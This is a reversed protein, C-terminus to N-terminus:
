HRNKMMKTMELDCECMDFQGSDLLEMLLQSDVEDLRTGDLNQEDHGHIVNFNFKSLDAVRNTLEQNQKEQLTLASSVHILKQM